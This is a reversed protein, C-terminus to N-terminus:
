FVITWGQRQAQEKSYQVRHMRNAQADRLTITGGKNTLQAQGAPLLVVQAGGAEITQSLVYRNNNDGALTWNELSVAQNSTNILTVTERDRDDGAPNVHAAVIRVTGPTAGPVFGDEPPPLPPTTTGDSQEMGMFKPYFTRLSKGDQSNFCAIGYRAGNIVAQRPANAERVFAVTGLALLGEISCGVWFGGTPKTLPRRAQAHYDFANWRYSLTVVEPHLLGESEHSGYRAGSYQIDDSGLFDASDDLLYKYWWHYGSVKGRQQEGVVVHEFGSLDQGSTQDYQRFWIRHLLNFWMGDEYKRRTQTQIFDRALEMPRSQAVATLLDAVEEAEEPLNEEPVTQGLEYNNFLKVARDYSALKREPIAHDAFLQHAQGGKRSEQVLVFGSAADAKDRQDARLAPVGNGRQDEHWIQEYIDSM